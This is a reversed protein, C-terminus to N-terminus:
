KKVLGTRPYSTVVDWVVKQMLLAAEKGPKAAYSGDAKRVEVPLGVPSRQYLVSYFTLAMLYAGFDNFHINDSFLDQRSQIPGIGGIAEVERVFRAMVQGGPIVYIPQVKEDFSLAKRLIQGEWYRELDLDIRKLWGEQDDLYHWTEYLFIRVDPNNARAKSAINHLMLASNKYRISDRIEVAETVILVDYTGSSLAEHGERFQGHRNSEAFGRREANVDWHDMLATGWGLQSNYQYGAGSFQFLMEPLDHGLLSHGLMMVSVPENLVAPPVTYLREFEEKSLPKNSYRLHWAFFTFLFVAVSVTAINKLRM